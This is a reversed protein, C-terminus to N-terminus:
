FLLSHKRVNLRAAGRHHAPMDPRAVVAVVAFDRVVRAAVAMTGLTLRHGAGRPERLPFRFQQRDRIEVDDERQGRLDRRQRKLVFALEVPHEELRGAFRQRFDGGIGPVQAGCLDAQQGHQVGPTLVQHVVRVQV